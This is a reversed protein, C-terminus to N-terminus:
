LCHYSLSHCREAAIDVGKAIVPAIFKLINPGVSRTVLDVATIEKIVAEQHTKSNIARYNTIM